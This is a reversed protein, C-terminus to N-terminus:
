HGMWWRNTPTYKIKGSEYIVFGGRLIKHNCKPGSVDFYSVIFDIDPDACFQNINRFLPMFKQTYALNWNKTQYICVGKDCKRRKNSTNIPEYNIQKWTDFTFYHNSARSKNFELKDNKVFAVLEHDSTAYFIPRASCLVIVIGVTVFIMFLIKNAHRFYFKGDCNRVLILCLFGMVMSTMALSSISPMHLTAGPLQSIRTAISLAFDYVSHTMNLPLNFGFMASITGIMVLPMVILSFIPLLIMNGLLSYVPVTHFHAAIFPLTFLTAIIDTMAAAKIVRWLKGRWSLKKYSGGNFYWILGFVAAFSLQFGAETVFHPNCLILTICVLCINRMSLSNRGFIFAAFVLTTMLFARITAVGIGSLMLYFLLGIWAFIMAPYRAPIRRTIPAISRFILYFLTFLWGGVLTMHFGSISWVHSIGNAKWIENQDTPIVNKYGLVLTDSLFSNTKNHITDRLKNIGNGRNGSKPKDIFETVYGTATLKNFYSWRAYDFSEPAAPGSPKFLNVRAHVTDGIDPKDMDSAVSVRITASRNSDQHRDLITAPVRIYLRAKTDTYDINTVIGTIEVNRLDRSLIPTDILRTFGCAYVFGFIFMLISTLLIGPKRVLLIAMILLAIPMPFMIRPEFSLAFYLAAGFAMLFPTWLFLNPFQNELFDKMSTIIPIFERAGCGYFRIYNFEM